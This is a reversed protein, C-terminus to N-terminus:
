QVLQPHAACDVVRKPVTARQNSVCRLGNQISLICALSIASNPHSRSLEPEQDALASDLLAVSLNCCGSFRSVGLQCRAFISL